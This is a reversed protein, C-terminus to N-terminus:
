LKKVFIEEFEDETYTNVTKFCYSEFMDLGFRIFNRNAFSSIKNEISDRSPSDNYRDKKGGKETEEQNKKNNYVLIFNTCNKIESVTKDTIISLVLVSNYIKEKIKYPDKNNNIHGNKFEIFTIEKDNCNLLADISKLRTTLNKNCFNKMVKDFNVAQVLCETMVEKNSDDKSTEKLSTINENFIEFDDINIM